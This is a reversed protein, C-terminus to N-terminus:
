GCVDDPTCLMHTQMCLLCALQVTSVYTDKSITVPRLHMDNLGDIVVANDNLPQRCRCTSSTRTYHVTTCCCCSPLHKTSCHGSYQSQSPRSNSMICMPTFFHQHVNRFCMPQAVKQQHLTTPRYPPATQLPLAACHTASQAVCHRGTPSGAPKQWTGKSQKNVAQPLYALMRTTHQAKKIRDANIQENNNDQCQLFALICALSCLKTKTNFHYKTHHHERRWVLQSARLGM